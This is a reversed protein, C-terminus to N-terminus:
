GTLVAREQREELGLSQGLRGFLRGRDFVGFHSVTRLGEAEAGGRGVELGLGGTTGNVEVLENTVVPDDEEGVGLIVSGDAGGLEAGEGLKLGLEGLPVGLEDAQACVGDLAVTAPDLVDILDGPGLEAEGDDAVLLPLDSKGVVHLNPSQSAHSSDRFSVEMGPDVVLVGGVNVRLANSEGDARDEDDVWLLGDAGDEGVRCASAAVGGLNQANDVRELSAVLVADGSRDVPNRTLLKPLM